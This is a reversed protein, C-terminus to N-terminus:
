RTVENFEAITCDLCECGRKHRVGDIVYGIQIVNNM